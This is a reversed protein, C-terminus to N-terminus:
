SMNSRNKTLFSGWAQVKAVKCCQTVAKGVWFRTFILGQHLTMLRLQRFFLQFCTLVVNRPWSRRLSPTRLSYVDRFYFKAKLISSFWHFDGVWSTYDWGSLDSMRDSSLFKSADLHRSRFIRNEQFSKKSYSIINGVRFFTKLVEFSVSGSM